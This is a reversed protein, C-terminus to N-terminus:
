KSTFTVRAPSTAVPCSPASATAATPRRSQRATSSSTATGSRRGEATGPDGPHLYVGGADTQWIEVVAGPVPTGNADLVRGSFELIDGTPQGVAGALSVLDNDRDEPKDVPYYPGEMQAPTITDFDLSEAADESAPMVSTAVASTPTELPAQRACATSLSLLLLLSLLLSLSLFRREKNM